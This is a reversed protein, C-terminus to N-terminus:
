SKKERSALAILYIFRIYASERVQPILSIYSFYDYNYHHVLVCCFNLITKYNNCQSILYLVHM